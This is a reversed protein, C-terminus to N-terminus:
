TNISCHSVVNKRLKTQYVPSLSSMEERHSSVMSQACKYLLTFKLFYEYVNMSGQRLIIFDEVNCQRLAYFSRLVLRKITELVYVWLVTMLM